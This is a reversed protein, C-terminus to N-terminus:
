KALIMQKCLVCVMNVYFVSWCVQGLLQLMEVVVVQSAFSFVPLLLGIQIVLCFMIPFQVRHM